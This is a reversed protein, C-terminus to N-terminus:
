AYKRYVACVHEFPIRNRKVNVIKRNPRFNAELFWIKGRRDVAFDLGLDNLHIFREELAKAIRLSVRYILEETEPKILKRLDHIIEGGQNINTVDWGPAALRGIMGTVQWRDNRDKQPSVRFDFRQGKYTKLYLGRQAIFDSPNRFYRNFYHKLRHHPILEEKMTKNYIRIASYKDNYKRLIHIGNGQGGQKPKIFVKSYDALMSLLTDYCLTKTNPLYPHIREFKSLYMYDKNKDRDKISCANYFRYDRKERLRKIKRFSGKSQISSGCKYLNIKPIPVTKYKLM